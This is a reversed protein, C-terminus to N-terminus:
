RCPSSCGPVGKEISEKEWGLAATTTPFTIVLTPRKARM